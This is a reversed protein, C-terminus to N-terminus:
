SPLVSHFRSENAKEQLQNVVQIHDVTSFEARFGAQERPQHQELTGLMRRLLIQSFYVKYTVPLLSIPRYNKIDVTDEKKHLIIVSANKWSSPVKGDAICRNFLKTFMKVIPKGWDQLIGATVNAEGPAKNGELRKIADRM